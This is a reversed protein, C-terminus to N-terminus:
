GHIVHIIASYAEKVPHVPPLIFLRAIPPKIRKM